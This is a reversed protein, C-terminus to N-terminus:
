IKSCIVVINKGFFKNLGLLDFLHSIPFLFSDYFKLSKLNIISNHNNKFLKLLLSAFFGLSDDFYIKNIKFGAKMCKNILENKEYRRYHGVAQDMSSFLFQFAPLYLFLKGEYNLSKFLLKLVKNDNKIHELVNSSFIYDFREKSDEISSIVKFSRKKLYDKNIKDIEVCTINSKTYDKIIQSLTGIGAGFDAIKINKNILVDKLFLSVIHKNYKKLGEETNLLERLGSYDTIEDDQM